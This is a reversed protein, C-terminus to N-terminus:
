PEEQLDLRVFMETVAGPDTSRYIIEGSRNFLVLAFSEGDVGLMRAVADVNRRGPLIDVPHIRRRVVADWRVSLDLHVDFVRDDNRNTALIILLNNRGRHEEVEPLHRSTEGRLVVPAIFALVLVMMAMPGRRRRNKSGM